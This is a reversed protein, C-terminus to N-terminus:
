DWYISSSLFLGWIFRAGYREGKWEFEYEEYGPLSEDFLSWKGRLTLTGFHTQFESIDVSWTPLETPSDVSLSGHQTHWYGASELLGSESAIAKFDFGPWLVSSYGLSTADSRTIGLLKKMNQFRSADDGLAEAVREHIHNSQDITLEHEALKTELQSQKGAMFMRLKMTMPLYVEFDM